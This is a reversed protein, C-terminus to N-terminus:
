QKKTTTSKDAELNAYRQLLADYLAGAQQRERDSTQSVIFKILEQNNQPLIERLPGALAQAQGVNRGLKQGKKTFELIIKDLYAQREDPSLENFKRAHELFRTKGIEFVANRFNELQAQPMRRLLRSVKTWEQEEGFRIYAHELFKERQEIPLCCFGRDDVFYNVIENAEANKVSPPSLPSFAAYWVIAGLVLVASITILLAIKLKGNATVSDSKRSNKDSFPANLSTTQKDM